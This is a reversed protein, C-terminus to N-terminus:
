PFRHTTPISRPTLGPKPKILRKARHHYKVLRDSTAWWGADPTVTGWGDCECVVYHVVGDMSFRDLIRVYLGGHYTKGRSYWHKCWGVSKHGLRYVPQRGQPLLGYVLM